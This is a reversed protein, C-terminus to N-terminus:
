AAAARSREEVAEELRLHPKRVRNENYVAHFADLAAARSGAWNEVNRLWKSSLRGCCFWGAVCVNAIILATIAIDM